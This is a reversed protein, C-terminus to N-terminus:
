PKIRIENESQVSKSKDRKLDSGRLDLLALSIILTTALLGYFSVHIGTRELNLNISPIFGSLGILLSSLIVNFKLYYIHNKFLNWNKLKVVIQAAACGM